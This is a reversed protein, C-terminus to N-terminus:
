YIFVVDKVDPFETLLSMKIGQDFTQPLYTCGVCAGKIRITIVKNKYSVFDMDGGDNVIYYKLENILKKINEITTKPKKLM